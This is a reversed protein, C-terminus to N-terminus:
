CPSHLIFEPFCIVAALFVELDLLLIQKVQHLCNCIYINRFLSILGHIYKLRFQEFQTRQVSLVETFKYLVVLNRNSGGKTTVATKEQTVRPVVKSLITTSFDGWSM